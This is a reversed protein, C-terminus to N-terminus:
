PGPWSADSSRAGMVPWEFVDADSGAPRAGVETTLSEVIKYAGSDAMARERLLAATAEDAAYASLTEAGVFPSALCAALLLAASHNLLRQAM